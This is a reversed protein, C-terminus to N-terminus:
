IYLPSVQNSDISKLESGSSSEEDKKGRVAFFDSDEESRKGRVAWFDDDNKKGRVAWFSPDTVRKEIEPDAEDVEQVVEEIEEAEDADIYEDEDYQPEGFKNIQLYGPNLFDDDASRKM